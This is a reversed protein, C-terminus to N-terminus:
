FAVGIRAFGAAGREHGSPDRRWSAGATFTLPLSYGLVADLSLEGGIALRADHADFSDDWVHGADAFLAGHLTRAFVPFTGAGREIRLLPLRYDLNIM